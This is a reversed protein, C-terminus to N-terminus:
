DSPASSSGGVEQADKRSVLGGGRGELVKAALSAGRQGPSDVDGNTGGDTEM